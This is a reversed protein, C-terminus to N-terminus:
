FDGNQVSGHVCPRWRVGSTWIRCFFFKFISSSGHTMIIIIVDPWNRNPALFWLFHVSNLSFIILTMEFNFIWVWVSELGWLHYICKIVSKRYCHRVWVCLSIVHVVVTILMWGVTFFRVQLAPLPVLGPYFGMRHNTSCFISRTELFARMESHSSSFLRCIISGSLLLGRKSFRWTFFSRISTRSYNPSSTRSFM